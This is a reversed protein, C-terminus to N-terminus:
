KPPHPFPEPTGSERAFQNAGRMILDIVAETRSDFRQEFRHNNIVAMVEDPVTITFRPKETSM